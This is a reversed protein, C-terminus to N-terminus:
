KTERRKGQKERENSVTHVITELAPYQFIKKRRQHNWYMKFLVLLLFILLFSLGVIVGTNHSVETPKQGSLGSMQPANHTVNGLIGEKGYYRCTWAAESMNSVRLFKGRQIVAASQVGGESHVERVWDYGTVESTDSLRCTLTVPGRGGRNSQGSSEIKAVVLKMNRTLRRNKVMGSCRYTGGDEPLVEPLNASKDAPSQSSSALLLRRPAARFQSGLEKKEWVTDSPSLAASFVCPLTVASGESAYVRTGDDRPQIIGEITLTASATWEKGQHTVACTWRGALRETARDVVVSTTHATDTQSLRPRLLLAKDNLKWQVSAASSWPTVLCSASFDNELVAIAPSITVKMIRLTVVTSGEGDVACSYVGGDEERVDNIWLSYDGREFQTHPCQARHTPLGRYQLGSKLKKWVTGQGDKRWVVAHPYKSLSNTNCPLVATSGVEAFEETESLSSVALSFPAMIGFLFVQLFM